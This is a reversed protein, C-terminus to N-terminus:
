GWYVAEVCYGSVKEGEFKLTLELYAIQGKKSPLKEESLKFVIEKKTSSAAGSGFLAVARSRPMGILSQQAKLFTAWRQEDSGGNLLPPTQTLRRICTPAGKLGQAGAMQVLLMLAALTILCRGTMRVM